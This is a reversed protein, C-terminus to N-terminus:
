RCCMLALTVACRRNHFLLFIYRLSLGSRRHQSGCVCVDADLRAKLRMRGRVLKLMVMRIQLLELMWMRHALVLRRVRQRLEQRAVKRGSQM